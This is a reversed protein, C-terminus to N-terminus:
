SGQKFPEKQEQIHQGNISGKCQACRVIGLRKRALIYSRSLRHISGCSCQMQYVSYDKSDKGTTRSIVTMGSVIDGPELDKHVTCLGFKRCAM